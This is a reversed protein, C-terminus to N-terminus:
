RWAPLLGMGLMGCHRFGELDRPLVDCWGVVAGSASEAAVFQAVGQAVNREVFRRVAELPPAQVFALFRRERAVADLCAHFGDADEVRIPRVDPPASVVDARDVGARVLRARGGGM